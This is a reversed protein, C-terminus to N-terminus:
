VSHRFIDNTESIALGYLAQADLDAISHIAKFAATTRGHMRMHLLLWERFRLNFLM